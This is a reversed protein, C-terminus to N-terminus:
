KTEQKMGLSSGDVRAAKFGEAAKKMGGCCSRPAKPRPGGPPGPPGEVQPWAAKLEAHDEDSLCVEGRRVTARALVADKYGPARFPAVEDLLRM